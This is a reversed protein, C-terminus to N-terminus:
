PNFCPLFNRCAQWFDTAADSPNLLTSIRLLPVDQLQAGEDGWPQPAARLLRRREAALMRRDMLHVADRTLDGACYGRDVPLGAAAFIARDMASACMFLREPDCVARKVPTTIDGLYAEHADHLLFAAALNRDQTELYMQRAGIVSHQAVSYFGFAAHGNFRCIRGLAPAIDNIIDIDDPRPDLLSVARGTITQVWPGEIM